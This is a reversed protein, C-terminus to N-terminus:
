NCHFLMMEPGEQPSLEDEVEGKPSASNLHGGPVAEYTNFLQQYLCGLFTLPLPFSATAIEKHKRSKDNIKNIILHRFAKM